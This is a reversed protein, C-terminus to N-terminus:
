GLLKREVWFSFMGCCTIYVVGFSYDVWSPISKVFEEYGLYLIGEGVISASIIFTTFIIIVSLLKRSLWIVNDIM